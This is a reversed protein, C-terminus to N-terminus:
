SGSDDVLGHRFVFHPWIQESFVGDRQIMDEVAETAGICSSITADDFVLYGGEVMNSRIVAEAYRCGSNIDCDIHALAIPGAKALVAPTTDEFLGKVLRINTLGSAVVAAAVDELSTNRFDGANHADVRKDTEPMGEYTDLAYVRVDPCLESCVSAMFLASGGRFSGFEIIHGHAIRSLFFRLILYLNMRNDESFNHLRGEARAVARAYIPDALVKARLGGYQLGWGRQYGERVVRGRSVGAAVGLVPPLYNTLANDNM